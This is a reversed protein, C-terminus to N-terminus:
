GQYKANRFSALRDLYASFVEYTDDKKGRNCLWCCPIANGPNYGHINDRRDIGMLSATEEPSRGCYHCNEIFLAECDETTLDWALGREKANRKYSNYRTKPNWRYRTDEMEAYEPDEAKRKAKWERMYKLYEAYKEPEEEKMLHLRAKDRETKRKRKLLADDGGDAM